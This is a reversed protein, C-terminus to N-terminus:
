SHWIKLLSIGVAGVAVVGGAISVPRSLVSGFAMGATEGGIAATVSDVPGSITSGVFALAIVSTMALLALLLAYETSSQGKQQELRPVFRVLAGSASSLM